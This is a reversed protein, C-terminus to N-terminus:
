HVFGADVDANPNQKEYKEEKLKGTYLEKNPEGEVVIQGKAGKEARFISHDVFTYKGPVNMQMELTTTGGSPILTTQVHHNQLTGGEM